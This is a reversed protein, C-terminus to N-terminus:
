AGPREEAERARSRMGWDPEYDPGYNASRLYEVDGAEDVLYGTVEEAYDADLAGEATPILRVGFGKTFLAEDAARMADEHSAAAVAVKVRVTAYVHVFHTPESMM